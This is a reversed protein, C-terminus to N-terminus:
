APTESDLLAAAVAQVLEEARFPKRIFFRVGLDRLQAEVIPNLYASVVVIPMNADVARALRAVDAGDMDPMKLDVTVLDYQDAILAAVTSPLVQATTVQHGAKELLGKMFTCIEPEDDVVLIRKSVKDGM